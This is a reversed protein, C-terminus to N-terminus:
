EESLTVKAVTRGTEDTVVVASDNQAEGDLM